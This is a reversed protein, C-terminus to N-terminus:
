NIKIKEDLLTRCCDDIGNLVGFDFPSSHKFQRMADIKKENEEKLKKIKSKPIFQKNFDNDGKNIEPYIGKTLMATAIKLNEELERIYKQYELNEKVTNKIIEEGDRYSKILNELAQKERVVEYEEGIAEIFDELRKINKEM